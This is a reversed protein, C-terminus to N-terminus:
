LIVLNLAKWFVTRGSRTSPHINKQFDTFCIDTARGHKSLSLVFPSILKNALKTVNM